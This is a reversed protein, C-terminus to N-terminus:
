VFLVNSITLKMHSWQKRSLSLYLFSFLFYFCIKHQTIKQSNYSTSQLDQFIVFLQVDKGSDM